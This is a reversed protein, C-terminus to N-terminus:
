SEEQQLPTEPEASKTVPVKKGVKQIVTVSGKTVCKSASIDVTIKKSCIQIGQEVLNEMFHQLHADATQEAQEKTYTETRVKYPVIRTKGYSIPLCFSSTLYVPNETRYVEAPSNGPSGLSLEKGWIKLFSYEKEEGIYEKSTHKLSFEDYYAYNTRMYIDADAGVYEYRQVQADNNLIELQGTVLIDGKKCEQGEEVLPMGARTVMNIVTGDREAALDWNEMETQTEQANTEGADTEQYADENEKIEVVLCTGEIKASVWVVNPFAARIQAAIKQCDLKKKLMGDAVQYTQLTELITEDSNYHNGDLRIDWIFLSCLYLLSLFLACGLFFAKRKQNRQFFFPMGHKELLIIRSQTKRRFTNLRFYDKVSVNMEYYLDHNRLNWVPIQNHVCLSLFREPMASELRIRVYGKMYHPIKEIM